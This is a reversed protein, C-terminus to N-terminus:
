LYMNDDGATQKDYLGSYIGALRHLSFGKRGFSFLGTGKQEYLPNGSKGAMRISPTKSNSCDSTSRYRAPTSRSRACFVAGPQDNTFRFDLPSAMSRAHDGM